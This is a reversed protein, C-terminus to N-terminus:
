QDAEDRKRSKRERNMAVAIGYRNNKFCVVDIDVVVSKRSVYFSVPVPQGKTSFDCKTVLNKTASVGVNGCKGNANYLSKTITQDDIATLFYSAEKEDVECTQVLSM